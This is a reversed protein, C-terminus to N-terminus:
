ILKARTMFFSHGIALDKEIPQWESMKKKKKLNWHKSSYSYYRIASDINLILESSKFSLNFWHTTNQCFSISLGTHWNLHHIPCDFLDLLKVEGLSFILTYYNPLLCLRSLFEDSNLKCSLWGNQFNNETGIVEYQPITNQEPSQSKTTVSFFSIFYKVSYLVRQWM